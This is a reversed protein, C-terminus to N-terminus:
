DALDAIGGESPVILLLRDDFRCSALASRLCCALQPPPGDAAADAAWPRSESIGVAPSSGRLVRLVFWRASPRPETRPPCSRPTATSPEPTYGLSGGDPAAEARRGFCFHQGRAILPESTTGHLRKPRVRM